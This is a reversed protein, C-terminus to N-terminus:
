VDREASPRPGVCPLELIFTSGAGPESQVRITGGHAEAIWRSIYLGLGLGGYHKDSVAREFREFIRGQRTPDIGIGHDRVAVRAMGAEEGLFIEIPKGAGFKLANSLLRTLIQAVRSRDWLGVIRGGDRMTLPCGAQSFELKFQEVVERVIAGLDVDELELPLQGAHLRSVDLLDRNLRCLRAGQLLSREVLRGMTQPDISRGARFARDMSQLTLTLSTMPTNLEHSAVSLFEDRVRIAEQTKRYLRANDIAIAARRAVEQVLKLDAGGYRRGPTSSVASLVGFTQGCAVLPVIMSSRAGLERCIRVHEDDVALRRIGEDSLEPFLLPEGTRLVGAAPQPSDWHPPYRRRLEELVREKAPDKHAGAIRRIEAGEVIDIVCWDCISRVSLRGLRALTEEYDLSESLLAGVEALFTAQREAMEAAARAAQEKSLLLANELSIAAQSALLSLAALREPTFASAVLNNELYLLGVVEAQRLIPLCLLSRPKVHVIYPDSAYKAGDAIGELVVREKTRWAYNAISVPVLSSSLPQAELLKTAVGGVELSAEAEISLGGERYLILCGRQAGGQELVITLLTRVLKDLVIEGSISQSAKTVSLLDLQETRVAFTAAPTPPRPQLLRPNQQDLQKVKSDAGWRVYCARAGSLYTNAFQDFGRARYFASALEYALAENQVFGNERASRIAEEYLRQADLERGEIRAIEASVLAHRSLYNEPCNDAWLKLKRLEAELTRAFERQQDAPVQPHLAALTLAHYFHYTAEIPQAMIAGLMTAARAASELAEGYRGGAFAAIQKMVHYFAIGCGFTAETIVALSEAEDFSGDDLSTPEPTAGRLSAVFRQELQLTHLVAANHSERAFAIYKRSVKLVEDLPSGKELVLWVTLITVLGAFVLDGVELCALFGQEMIPVSTAIPRRWFHIHGGHMFLLKGKLRADNFKENLRLSMESFEYASPIDGFLSALMIGYASYAFCTEEANGYRLSFNLAKVVELAFMEPRANYACPISDVLLGIIARGNPDRVAPADLLDAIRRDRLNASIDRIEAEVEVQIEESSEPLRVGFLGLGELAVTVGDAYRRSVQYLRIRLRYARARDPNSRANQLILDFLEDARHFDGVLYECESLEMYLTFTDEYRTSWADSPLLSAAQALYGCASAYAVSAKAKRGAQFNFRCLTEKERPDTILAVGHNLQNAVDFVREDLAEEPLHFALLRGIELHVAARLEEPILSYAAEQVRDHLYMYAGDLRLVLGARVAEWLDAHMEQESRRCVRTLTALKATNGLCALRKLAEQTREPLRTLKGVMLDVVNDTFGKARIRKVDWRWTRARGDFELLREEYLATLFQIVFFPNGATKEHVLDSLSVSDEGRCRLTDSVLMALHERSLPGLVIDSVLAGEKRMKDLTLILPHSPAVENDRYTGIGLFHGTEPHTMLDQLLALSASDAWQLDDLFLALPHEKRAFVGIFHRFVMHFRNQAETPPLEPVPPQRGVVLEVQPIVEVILQGNSGLAGLLRQRFTSLREESGALLEPVLERFARVITSYPIDRKYKDFKGSIFFGRERVIPKHLEYVLASKGIGSYGSVLVFEPSGTAVVREFTRLLAAIEDERGYLKQPIKFRGSVDHEALPFPELRGRARSETLCRVLDHRLGRATQYREEAMKGLLKLVLASLLEPLQPVLASPPPPTRAVHCHVWELPDRAVFPLGGTLMEYFIVGLAYLDARSDIARNMRGTQEPALYPLSGEIFSSIEPANHERPLRSALGFGTLKVQGTAANVLINQPKLDKHIIDREHLESVAAAIRVALDLFRETPMPAGIFHDLSEGGFDEMVLAPMGEYTELALPAVITQLDLTKGIAHEHRLREVDGSRGHRPDLVKLLVPLHDATRLGRFLLTGGGEYLTETITFPSASKTKM